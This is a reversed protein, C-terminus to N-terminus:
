ANNENIEPEKRVEKVTEESKPEEEKIEPKESVVEQKTEEAKEEMRNETGNLFDAQDFFNLQNVEDNVVAKKSSKAKPTPKAKEADSSIYHSQNMNEVEKLIDEISFNDSM